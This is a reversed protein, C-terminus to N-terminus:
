WSVAVVFFGAGTTLTAGGAAATIAGTECCWPLPPLATFGRGTGAFESSSLPERRGAVGPARMTVGGGVLPDGEAVGVVAGVGPM